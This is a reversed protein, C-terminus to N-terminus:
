RHSHSKVRSTIRGIEDRLMEKKSFRHVFLNVAFEWMTSPRAASARHVERMQAMVNLEYVELGLRKAKIIVEADLFFDKSQINMRDFNERSLIKPNGNIDISSLGGYLLNAIMNYSFSVLKRVLGDQRFRRRVKVLKPSQSNAVIEYLRVTDKARVHGDACSFGLYKGRCRRLGCLIGNGYGENVKLTEKVIPLGQDILDDIIKETNDSSGNNVLVLELNIHKEHFRQILRVSTNRIVDEENYCPLVLSLDPRDEKAFPSPKQYDSM